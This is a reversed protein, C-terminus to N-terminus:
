VLQPLLETHTMLSDYVDLIPTAHLGRVRAMLEELAAEM